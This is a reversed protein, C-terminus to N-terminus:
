KKYTAMSSFSLYLIFISTSFDIVTYHLLNLFSYRRIESTNGTTSSTGTATKNTREISPVRTSTDGYGFTNRRQVGVVSNKQPAKKPIASKGPSVSSSIQLSFASQASKMISDIDQVISIRNGSVRHCVEFHM